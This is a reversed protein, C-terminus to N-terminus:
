NMTRVKFTCSVSPLTQSIFTIQAKNKANYQKLSGNSNPKLTM